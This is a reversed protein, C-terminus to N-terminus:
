SERIAVLHSTLDVPVSGQREIKAVGYRVYGPYTSKEDPTVAVVVQGSSGGDGSRLVNRRRVAELDEGPRWVPQGRCRCIAYRRYQQLM